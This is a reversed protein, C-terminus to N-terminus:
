PIKKHFLRAHLICYEIPCCRLYFRTKDYSGHEYRYFINFASERKGFENKRKLKTNRALTQERSKPKLLRHNDMFVVKQKLRECITKLSLNSKTNELINLNSPQNVKVLLCDINNLESVNENSISTLNHVKQKKDCQSFLKIDDEYVSNLSSPNTTLPINFSAEPKDYLLDTKRKAM